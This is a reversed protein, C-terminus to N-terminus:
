KKTKCYQILALRVDRRIDTKSGSFNKINSIEPNGDKLFDLNAEGGTMLFDGIAVKYIRSEDLPKGSITIAGKDDASLNAYQLFGGLGVNKTQSTTVIKKLLSGKIEVEAISGGFPLMRIVDFETVDGAVVDDIRVSGSNLIAVESTPSVSLMANAILELLPAAKARIVQERGDLPTKTTFVFADPTFGLEQFNKRGIEEWKQVAAATTPDAIINTDIKKLESAIHLKKTTKDFTLRHIYATKANADAKAVVVDGVKHIQHNHDHGGMLLQVQPMAKALALDDDINLHTLAVVFDCDNKIAYYGRKYAAAVDEYQVFPAKNFPLTVGIIGIKVVTGDGDRMEEIITQAIPMARQEFPAVLGKSVHQVNTSVYRFKSEDIREQVEDEKIDFEHNGFTALDLGMVNLVDVMQRGRLRKGDVKLTGLVSPSFFDGAMITLTNANEAKLQQRLAAVRALGGVRGKELPAIEYVDNIQLFTMSLKGDDTTKARNNATNQTAKTADCATYVLSLASFFIPIFTKNQLLPTFIKM